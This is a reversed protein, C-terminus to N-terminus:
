RGVLVIACTRIALRGRMDPHYKLPRWFQKHIPEKLGLGYLVITSILLRDDGRAVEVHETFAM